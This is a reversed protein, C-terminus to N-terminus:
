LVTIGFREQIQAIEDNSAAHHLDRFYEDLGGPVAILLVTAPRQASSFTHPLNRPLFVFSGPGAHFTDAGCRVTLEGDLIYLSEDEHKHVHLPPGDRIEAQMVTLAGHTSQRTAAM